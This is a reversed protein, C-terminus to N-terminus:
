TVQVLFHLQTHTHTHTHTHTNGASYKRDNLLYENIGLEIGSVPSTASLAMTLDKRKKKFMKPM